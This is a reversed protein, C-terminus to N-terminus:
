RQKMQPPNYTYKSPSIGMVKKFETSFHKYDNYGCMESVQQLSYYGSIILSSAYTMRCNIVYNMPSTDYEKKFLNRFYSESIHSKKAAEAISFEKKYCNEEIYQISNYIKSSSNKLTQNDSYLEAFIRNLISSAEHKYSTGRSSWCNWIEEFLMRYKETNQPIFKEIANPHYNFTKFHIVIMKDKKAIRTYNINGPFFSISNNRLQLRQTKSEIVTDAELRFSLADFNRDQNYKKINKQDIYLVDLIVFAITEKQFIM